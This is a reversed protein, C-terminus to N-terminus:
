NETLKGAAHRQHLKASEDADIYDVGAEDHEAERQARAEAKTQNRRLVHHGTASKGDTFEYPELDVLHKPVKMSDADKGKVSGANAALLEECHACGVSAHCDMHFAKDVPVQVPIQRGDPLTAMTSELDAGVVVHRPDGDDASGGCVPCTRDVDGAGGSVRLGPRAGGTGEDPDASTTRAAPPM